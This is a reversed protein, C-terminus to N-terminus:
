RRRRRCRPHHGARDARRSRPRSRLPPWGRQPSRAAPRFRAARLTAGGAVSTVQRGTRGTPTCGFRGWQWSAHTATPAASNPVRGAAESSGTTAALPMVAQMSDDVYPSALGRWYDRRQLLIRRADPIAPDNYHPAVPWDRKPTRSRASTRSRQRELVGPCSPDRPVSLPGGFLVESRANKAARVPNSGTGGGQSLTM